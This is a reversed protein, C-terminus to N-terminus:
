SKWIKNKIRTIGNFILAPVVILVTVKVFPLIYVMWNQPMDNSNEGNGTESNIRFSDAWDSYTLTWFALSLLVSIVTLLLLQRKHKTIIEGVATLHHVDSKFNFKSFAGVIWRWHLALHIGLIVMFLTASITHIQSWFPDPEFHIGFLPLAAESIVIGSVTVLIMLLFLSWNLIYDFRTKNPNKKFFKTSNTAIWNWNIILHIYFPILIIFSAWEHIPIGTTQPILVLIMLTFFLIDVYIRVKSTKKKGKNM